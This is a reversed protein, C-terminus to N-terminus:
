HGLQSPMDGYGSFRSNTSSNQTLQFDIESLATIPPTHGTETKQANKPAKIDRTNFLLIKLFTV